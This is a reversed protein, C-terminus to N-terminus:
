IESRKMILHFSCGDIRFVMSYPSFSCIQILTDNIAPFLRFSFFFLIHIDTFKDATCHVATCLTCDVSYICCTLELSSLSHIEDINWHKLYTNTFIISIYFAWSTKDMKYLSYKCYVKFKSLVEKVNLTINISIVSIQCAHWIYKLMYTRVYM